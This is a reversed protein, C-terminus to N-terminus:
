AVPSSALEKQENQARVYSLTVTAGGGPTDALSVAGGCADMIRRVIALGLGAGGPKRDIRWFREFVRARLELPIGPGHDVVRVEPLPGVIIEVETGAPAHTLANEVVNRLARELLDSRGEVLTSGANSFRIIKGMDIAIPTLDGAVRSALEGLDTRASRMDDLGEIRALDLMQSILRRMATAEHILQSREGSPPLREITLMMTALPTRVEHAVDATFQRLAVIAHELRDLAGNIARLLAIVELPSDPLNLRHSPQAADLANADVMARELPALMRRVIIVNLLLLLGALPVLPVLVHDRVEKYLAPLYPRLGRGSIAVSIGVPRGGIEVRRTGSLFFLSGHTERSTISQLDGLPARPLPWHAPNSILVPNGHEDYIAIALAPSGLSQRPPVRYGEARVAAAVKAVQMSVLDESLTEPDGIYLGFVILIELIAFVATVAALRLAIQSFLRPPPRSRSAGPPETM